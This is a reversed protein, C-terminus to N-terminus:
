GSTFHELAARYQLATCVYLVASTYCLFCCQVGRIKLKACMSVESLCARVRACSDRQGSM